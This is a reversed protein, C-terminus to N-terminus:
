KTRRGIKTKIKVVITKGIAIRTKEKEFKRKESRRHKTRRRM